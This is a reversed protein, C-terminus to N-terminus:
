FFDRTLRIKEINELSFTPAGKKAQKGDDNDSSLSFNDGDGVGSNITNKKVNLVIKIKM